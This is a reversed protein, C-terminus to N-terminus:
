ERSEKLLIFDNWQLDRILEVLDNELQERSVEYESEFWVVIDELTKNGDIALFFDKAVQNLYQLNHKESAIILFDGEERSKVENRIPILNNMKEYILNM